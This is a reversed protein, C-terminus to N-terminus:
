KRHSCMKCFGINITFYTNDSIVVLLWGCTDWEYLWNPFIPLYLLIFTHTHKTAWNHWSKAIGSYVCKITIGVVFRMLIVTCHNESLSLDPLIYFLADVNQVWSLFPHTTVSGSSSLFSFLLNFPPFTSFCGLNVSFLKGLNLFQYNKSALFSLPPYSYPYQSSLLQDKSPRGSRRDLHCGESGRLANEPFLSPQIQLDRACNLLAM